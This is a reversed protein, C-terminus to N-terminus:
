QESQPDQLSEVSLAKVRNQADTVLMSYDKSDGVLVTGDAAIVPYTPWGSANWYGIQLGDDDVVYVHGDDCAAYVWGRADITLTFAGVDGLKTAWKITGDPDVARLYPDDLSVYITGDPGLAPESWGDADADFDEAEADIGPAELLDVAWLITGDNPDIAYLHSDYLLTQYITGDPGIVPSAFPWGGTKAGDPDATDEPYLEFNCTWKVSGDTPDLAYLNPDYLGAAYVTGDAGISASALVAGTAIAGPGKTAFQWLESGDPALAYFTGDSSGFYVNGDTTVAPSSYAANGTGYTWRLTGNPDIARLKGDQSGVFLSGDPGLSPATLLPTNVDVIWLTAGSADFTYLKGDECAAHIRGDFGITVSSLVAGGTDRGWSIAGELLGEHTSSGNRGYDGGLSPWQAEDACTCAPGFASASVFCLLAVVLFPKPPM